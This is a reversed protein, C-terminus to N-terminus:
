ARRAADAVADRLFRHAADRDNRPHWIQSVQYPELGLSRPPQVVKVDFRPAM